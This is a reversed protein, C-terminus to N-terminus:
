PKSVMDVLLRIKDADATNYRDEPPYLAGGYHIAPNAATSNDRAVRSMSAHVQTTGTLTIIDLVNELKIGAGPLIEIRGAAYEIMQRVTQAGFYVSPMQGSTLVRKVKLSILTDLAKKWDPVVDIARHFVSDKDGIEDMMKSCRAKDVTGDEHLFGFVIGDAGAKILEAADVLMTEFEADTYCFGGERSRVMAMIPLGARRSVILEGISPTLGGLFMGSNLEVRDAGALKAQFVDDASGCCIEVLIKKM